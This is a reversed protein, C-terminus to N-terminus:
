QKKEGRMRRLVRATLLGAEFLLVLPVALMLQSFIDPGPTLISAAIFLVVVAHKRFRRLTEIKVVGLLVMGVMAVPLNFAVGFALLFSSLFHVYETLSVMPRLWESQMGVLFKLAFPLVWFFSFSVGGVFLFSSVLVWPLVKKREKEYLGPSLFSWVQWCVVPSAFVLGAFCAAKVKLLFAEAPSFFYFRDIESRIPNTLFELIKDAYLFSLVAFIFVAGLSILLVKRFEELHEWFTM